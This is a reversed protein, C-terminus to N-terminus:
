AAPKVAAPKTEKEAPAAGRRAPMPLVRVEGLPALQEKVQAAPAVVVVVMRDPRVFKDMVERIKERTVQSIRLPYKDYYDVPYDNLIGEVRYGAQQAITQMGMVMSGTVRLKAEKLEEDTVDATRLDDFVKFMSTVADATSPIKTDTGGM